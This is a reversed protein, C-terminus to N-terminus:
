AALSAQAGQIQSEIADCAATVSAQLNIRSSIHNLRGALDESSLLALWRKIAQPLDGAASVCEGLRLRELQDTQIEQDFFTPMTLVPLGHSLAQYISGNGGHCLVLSARELVHSASVFPTCHVNPPLDGTSAETGSILVQSNLTGLSTMLDPDNIGTSGLTVYILPQGSPIKELVKRTTAEHNLDDPWFLPGTYAAAPPLNSTPMFEPLDAILNIDPSIFVERLDRTRTSLGYEAQVTAFPGALRKCVLKEGLPGIWPMLYRDVRERGILANLPFGQPSRIPADLWPGCNGNTIAAYRTRTIETAIRLSNRCDGLVLDPQFERILDLDDRVSERLEDALYMPKLQRLREYLGHPDSTAVVVPQFGRDRVWSAYKPGTAFLVQHGRIRLEKALLLPRTVHALSIGEGFILIRKSASM